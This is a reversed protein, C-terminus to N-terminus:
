LSETLKLYLDFYQSIVRESLQYPNEEGIVLIRQENVGADLLQDKVAESVAVVVDSANWAYKMRKKWSISDMLSTSHHDGVGFCTVITKVDRGIGYPLEENLGHYVKVKEASLWRNLGYRMWVSPIFKASGEPVFTSVNAQSTFYSRYESKIRTSFLLARFDSIHKSSLGEVLGRCWNGLEGNNRFINNADYGVLM